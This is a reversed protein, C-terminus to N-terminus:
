RQKKSEVKDGSGAEGGKGNSIRVAGLTMLSAGLLWLGGISEGFVVVGVLTSILYNCVFALLSAQLASVSQLVRVFLSLMVSNLLLVVAFLAIRVPLLDLGLTDLFQTDFAMKGFVSAFSGCSASTLALALM